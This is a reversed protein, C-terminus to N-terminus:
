VPIPGQLHAGGFVLVDIWGDNDYDLFACGCGIGELIYEKRVPAGYLIPYNFGAQGGVEVFHADFPLGSRKARPQATVAHQIMGEQAFATAATATLGSLLFARRSQRM